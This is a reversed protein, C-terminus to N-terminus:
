KTDTDSDKSDKNDKPYLKLVEDTLDIGAKEYLAKDSDLVLDVGASQAVKTILARIEASAKSLMERKQADLENQIKNKKAQFAKAKKQFTREKKSKDKVDKDNLEKQLAKLEDADGKLEQNKEQAMAEIKKEAKQVGPYAQFLKQGAATAVKTEKAMATSAVLLCCLLTLIRM